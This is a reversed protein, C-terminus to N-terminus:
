HVAAVGWRELAIDRISNARFHRLTWADTPTQGLTKGMPVASSERGQRAGEETQRRNLSREVPSAAVRALLFVRVMCVYTCLATWHKPFGRRQRRQFTFSEMPPYTHTSGADTKALKERKRERAPPATCTPTFIQHSPSVRERERALLLSHPIGINDTLARRTPTM